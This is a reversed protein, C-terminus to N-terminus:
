IEVSCELDAIMIKHQGRNKATKMNEDIYTFDEDALTFEVTKRDGPRLNVKSFKRLKKIFPTTPCYMMRVFLLVSEDIEYSGKNEVCVSAYVKGDDGVKAKLDSYEITTYSLGYGFPYWAAPSASVYDRGPAGPAGPRKYFSGRASMKHNYYCPIHGTSQPM